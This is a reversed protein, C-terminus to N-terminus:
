QRQAVRFNSLTEAYLFIGKFLSEAIKQRHEPRKLLAEERTNSMFGIETLVSPMEAGILVVFPAKKVGRNRIRGHTQASLEYAAGQIRAAFERSEEFKDRLAIKKLLDSLEHISKQAGANERAAVELDERSNTFNLYFTEAGVTSRLPSSNAHISLFLDARKENAIEPRRELPIFIDTERTYIVEANLREEILRGLRLTVDLVLDKEKLGGRTITGTDHGGHGADLVVRGLKLGLVRTLSRNGMRDRQAPRAIRPPETEPPPSIGPEVPAPIVAKALVPAQPPQEPLVARPIAPELFSPIRLQRPARLPLSPLRGMSALLPPPEAVRTREPPPVFVRAARAPNPPAPPPDPEVAARSPPVPTPALSVRGDKMLKLELMVRDPNSLQSVMLDAEAEMDLVIRTVNKQTLAVRIQRILGDGVTITQMAPGAKPRIDFLDIYVREPNPLRDFKYRAEISTELAVRTVEGASWFRVENLVGVEQASMGCAAALMLWGAFLFRRLGAFAPAPHSFAAPRPSPNASAM